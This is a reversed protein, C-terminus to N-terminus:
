GERVKSTNDNEALWNDCYGTWLRRHEEPPLICERLDAITNIGLTPGERHIHRYLESSGEISEIGQVTANIHTEGREFAAYARSHGDILSLESDIESVLVSPLQEQEGNNWATRIHELKERNLYWNNPRLDLLKLLEM